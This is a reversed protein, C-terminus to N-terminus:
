DAFKKKVSSKASSSGNSCVSYEWPWYCEEMTATGKLNWVDDAKGQM